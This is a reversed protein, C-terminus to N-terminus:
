EESTENDARTKLAAALAAAPALAPPASGTWTDRLGFMPREVVAVTSGNDTFELSTGLWRRMTSDFQRGDALTLDYSTSALSFLSDLVREELTAVLRGACDTIRYERGWSLVKEKATLVLEGDQNKMRMQIGVSLVKEEIVGFPQEDAGLLMLNTGFGFWQEQVVFDGDPPWDIAPCGSAALAVALLVSSGM